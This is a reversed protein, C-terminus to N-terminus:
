PTTVKIRLFSAASAASRKAKLTRITGVESITEVTIGAAQWATLDESWQPTVTVDTAELDITYTISLIGDEITAGPAPSFENPDLGLAYEILNAMGDGDPDAENGAIEGNGSHAGFEVGRWGEIPPQEDTVEISLTTEVTLGFPDTARVLFSNPGRM